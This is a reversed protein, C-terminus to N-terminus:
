ETVESDDELEVDIVSEDGILRMKDIIDEYIVASMSATDKIGYSDLIERLKDNCEDGFVEKAVRFLNRRQEISITEDVPNSDVVVYDSDNRATESVAGAAVMEDKTYLGSYENPYAARFAQSKAVKVIMTAPKDKWSSKGSSYESLAVEAFTEDIYGGSRERYVRCWGGILTEGAAAIVCSGEKQIVETKGDLKRIVTVGAKHGRYDPFKEARRMFYMYGVVMQAPASGYKILYVEGNEFPDLKKAQCTRIFTSVEADTVKGGGSVCQNRVMQATLEVPCGSFSEYKAVLENM